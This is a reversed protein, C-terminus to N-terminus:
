SEPMRPFSLDLVQNTPQSVQSWTWTQDAKVHDGTRSGLYFSIEGHELDDVSLPGLIVHMYEGALTTSDPSGGHIFEAYIVQDAPGPKGDVTFKGEFIVPFPPPGPIPTFIDRDYPTSEVDDTSCGLVAVVLMAVIFLIPTFRPKTASSTSFAM